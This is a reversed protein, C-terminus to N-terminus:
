CLLKKTLDGSHEYGLSLKDFTQVGV